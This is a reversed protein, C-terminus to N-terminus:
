QDCIAASINLVIRLQVIQAFIRTFSRFRVYGRRINGAIRGEFRQCDINESRQLLGLFTM